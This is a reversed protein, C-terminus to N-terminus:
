SARRRRITLHRIGHALSQAFGGLAILISVMMGQVFIVDPSVFYLVPTGLVSHATWITGFLIISTLIAGLWGPLRFTGALAFGLATGLGGFLLAGVNLDPLAAYLLLWNYVTWVLAGSITGLVLGVLLRIWMPWFGRLREPLEGALVVVIGMFIGFTIGTSITRGLKENLLIAPGSLNIWAYLSMAAFGGLFGFVFRWVIGMPEDSLRRWTNYLWTYIRAQPSVVSPLSPAEDRIFALTRLAQKHGQRQRHAVYRVAQLSRMRGIARAAQEAVAPYMSNLAIEALLEDIDTSFIRERWDWKSRKPYTLIARAGLVYIAAKMADENTEVQLAQAVAAPIRMHVNDSLNALRYIARVRAPANESRVAHLAVWRRNEDDLKNWWHDIQYDYELAGRLLMQVGAEDLELGHKRAHTYYDCVLMYHTIGMLFRGQGRAWVRRARVYLDVAEQKAMEDPSMLPIVEKLDVTGGVDATEEHEDEPRMLQGPLTQPMPKPALAQEMEEILTLVSAPRLSPNLSTGRRLVPTLTEPLHPRVTGLDPLDEQFQLQKIALSTTADFPLEGTLLHFMLITFSYIDARHDLADETLQEPAMYLLTGYGPNAARGEPGVVTALGFDALYPSQNSDLLINSPKIDLHIVQSRHAYDLASAMARGIRLAEPVALPGDTLLGDLGGGTVFRMVIYLQNDYSGFDYIPLIHPHELRAITKAEQEFLAVPDTDAALDRSVTKIAVTRSLRKDRASWVDAMGGRGIHEVVTYHGINTGVDM